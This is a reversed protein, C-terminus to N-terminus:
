KVSFLNICSQPVPHRVGYANDLNTVTQSFVAGTIVIKGPEEIGVSVNGKSVIMPGVAVCVMTGSVARSFRRHIRYLIQQKQKRRSNSQRLTPATRGETGDETSPNKWENPTNNM